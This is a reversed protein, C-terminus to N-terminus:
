SYYATNKLAEFFGTRYTNDNILLDAYNDFGVWKATALPSTGDWGTFSLGFAAIMPILVFLGLIILAPAIFGLGALWEQATKGALLSPRAPAVKGAALTQTAM